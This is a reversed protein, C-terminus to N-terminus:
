VSNTWRTTSTIWRPSKKTFFNTWLNENWYKTVKLEKNFETIDKFLLENGELENQSLRYELAEREIVANDYNLDIFLANIIATLGAIFLCFISIASLIQMLCEPFGQEDVVFFHKKRQKEFKRKRAIKLVFYLSVFVIM